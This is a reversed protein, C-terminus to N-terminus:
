NSQKPPKKTNLKMLEKYIKSILWKDSMNNTFIIKWEAPKKNQQKGKSHLFNKTEQLGM